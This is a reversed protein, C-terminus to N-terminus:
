RDLPDPRYGSTDAKSTDAAEEEGIHSEHDYDGTAAAINPDSAPLASVDDDEVTERYGHPDAPTPMGPM